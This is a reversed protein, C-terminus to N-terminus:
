SVRASNPLNKLWNEIEKQWKSNRALYVLRDCKRETIASDGKERNVKHTSRDNLAKQLLSQLQAFQEPQLRATFPSGGSYTGSGSLAPTIPQYKIQSEGIHWANNNGDVYIYVLQKNQPIELAPWCPPLSPNQAFMPLM